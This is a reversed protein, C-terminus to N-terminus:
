VSASASPIGHVLFRKGTVSYKVFETNSQTETANTLIYTGDLNSDIFGSYTIKSGVQIAAGGDQSTGIILELTAESVFDFYEAFMTNGQNDKALAETSTINATASQVLGTLGTATVFVGHFATPASAPYTM